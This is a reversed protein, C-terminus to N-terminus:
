GLRRSRGLLGTRDLLHVLFGLFLELHLPFLRSGRADRAPDPDGDLRDPAPMPPLASGLTGRSFRPTGDHPAVSERDRIVISDCGGHDHGPRVPEAGARRGDGSRRDHGRDSDDHMAGGLRNRGATRGLLGGAWRRRGPDATPRGRHRHQLPINTDLTFREVSMCPIGTSRGQESLGAKTWEPTPGLSDRRKRPRSNVSMALPRWGRLRCAMAAHGTSIPREVINKQIEAQEKTDGAM